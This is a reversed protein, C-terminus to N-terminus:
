AQDESLFTLARDLGMRKFLDKIRPNECAVLLDGDRARLREAWLTLIRMMKSDVLTAQNLDVALRDNAAALAEIARELEAGATLDADGSVYVTPLAAGSGIEISCAM